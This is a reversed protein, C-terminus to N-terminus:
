REKGLVILRDHQTRPELARTANFAAVARTLRSGLYHNLKNLLHEKSFFHVSGNTTFRMALRKALKELTRRQYFSIHQGTELSYYWWQDPAPPPGSFLETTFIMLEAGTSSIKTHLFEVPDALHELVEFATIASCREGDRYEFGRAHVNPCYDDNWFFNFGADRMLRVLLGTGGAIDLYTGDTGFLFHLLPTLFTSLEINRAVLGTDADAIADVYAEELWSPEEARLFGCTSCWVADFRHNRMATASFARAMSGGCIVCIGQPINHNASSM